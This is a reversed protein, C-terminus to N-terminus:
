QELLGSPKVISVRKGKIINGKSIGSKSVGKGIKLAGPENVESTVANRVDKIGKLIKCRLSDTRAKATASDKLRELQLLFEDMDNVAHAPVHVGEGQDIEGFDIASQQIKSTPTQVPDIISTNLKHARLSHISQVSKLPFDAAIEQLGTEVVASPSRALYAGEYVRLKKRSVSLVKGDSKRLVLAMPWQVCVFWGDETLEARKHVAGTIPAFQCPAGFIKLCM